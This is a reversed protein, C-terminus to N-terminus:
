RQAGAHLAAEEEALLRAFPMDQDAPMLERAHALHGLADIQAAPDHAPAGLRAARARLWEIVALPRQQPHAVLAAAASDLAARAARVRTRGHEHEDRDLLLRARETWMPVRAAVAATDAVLDAAADRVWDEAADWHAAARREVARVARLREVEALALRTDVRARRKWEIRIALAEGLCAAASDLAAAQGRRVLALHAEGLNELVSAYAVRDDAGLGGTSRAARLCALCPEFLASSDALDAYEL